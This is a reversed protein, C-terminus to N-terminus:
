GPQERADLWSGLHAAFAGPAELHASHGAGEVLVLHANAPAAPQGPVATPSNIAEVLHKAEAAFKTDLAGATVLVPMTLAGLRDWLPEQQGTGCGRLSAALGEMRNTLREARAQFPAELGAFLPLALWEELFAALGVTELREALHADSRRRAARDLRDRLGATAGVVILREVLEPRDCALQLCLRGGMSYGLYTAPGGAEGILSAAEVFSATDHSPATAGHGPADVAVVHFRRRVWALLDGWCRGNQTFGHVLVLTPASSRPYDDFALSM